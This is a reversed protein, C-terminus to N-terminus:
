AAERPRTTLAADLMVQDYPVQGGTRWRRHPKGHFGACEGRHSEIQLPCDISELILQVDQAIHQKEPSIRRRPPILPNPVCGRRHRALLTEALLLRYAPEEGIGVSTVPVWVVLPERLTGLANRARQGTLEFRQVGLDDFPLPRLPNPRGVQVVGWADSESSGSYSSGPSPSNITNPTEWM